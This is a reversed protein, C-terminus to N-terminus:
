KKTTQTSGESQKESQSRTTESLGQLGSPTVLFYYAKGLLGLSFGVIDEKKVEVVANGNWAKGDVFCEALLEVIAGIQKVDGDKQIQIKPVMRQYQETVIDRFKLYCDKWDEGMDDLKLTRVTTFTQM